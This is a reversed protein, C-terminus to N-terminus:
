APGLLRVATRSGLRRALLARGDLALWHAHFPEVAEWGVRQHLAYCPETMWIGGAVSPAGATVARVLKKALGAGRYSPDVLLDFSFHMDFQREGARLRVPLSGLSGVVKTGDLVLYRPSGGPCRPNRETVWRFATARREVVDPEYALSWLGKSVRCITPRTSANLSTRCMDLRRHGLSHLLVVPRPGDRQEADRGCRPM